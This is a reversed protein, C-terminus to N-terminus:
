PDGILTPDPASTAHNSNLRRTAIVRAGRTPTVVIARPSTHEPKEQEASLQLAQTIEQLVIRIEFQAFAAGICRRVSGGFPFWANAAARKNLWREP